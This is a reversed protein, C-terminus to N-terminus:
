NPNSTVIIRLDELIPLAFDKKHGKQEEKPINKTTVSFTDTARGITLKANITTSYNESSTVQVTVTSGDRVTGSTSTYSGGNISYAGGTISIPSAANIGSVNVPNSTFATNLAVGTRDALTFKAPTVDTQTTLIVTETWTEFGSSVLEEYSRTKYGETYWPDIFTVMGDEIGVGVVFHNEGIPRVMYIIFPRNAEILKTAEELTLAAPYGYSSVGWNQLIDVISGAKGYNYNGYNCGESADTCCNTSGFDHWTANKRAYEAITCQSINKGYYDLVIKSTAAWCWHSEEQNVEPVALVKALVPSYMFGMMLFIYCLVIVIKSIGQFAKISNKM